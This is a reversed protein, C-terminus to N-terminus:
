SRRSESPWRWRMDPPVYPDGTAHLLLAPRRDLRPSNRRAGSAPQTASRYLPPDRAMDADLHEAIDAALRRVRFGSRNSRPPAVMAAVM